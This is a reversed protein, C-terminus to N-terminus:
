NDPVIVYNSRFGQQIKGSVLSNMAKGTSSALRGVAVRSMSLVDDAM